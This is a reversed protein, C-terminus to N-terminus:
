CLGAVSQFWPRRVVLGHRMERERRDGGGGDGVYSFRTTCNIMLLVPWMGSQEGRTFQARNIAM